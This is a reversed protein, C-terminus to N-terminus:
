FGGFLPWKVSIVEKKSRFKETKLTAATKEKTLGVNALKRLLM